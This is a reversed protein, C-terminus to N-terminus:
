PADRYVFMLHFDAVKNFKKYTEQPSKITTAQADM